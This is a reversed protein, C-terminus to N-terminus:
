WSVSSSSQLLITQRLTLWLVLLFGLLRDGFASSLFGHETALKKHWIIIRKLLMCATLFTTLGSKPAFRPNTLQPISKLRRNTIGPILFKFPPNVALRFIAWDAKWSGPGTKHTNTRLQVSLYFIICYLRKMLVSCDIWTVSGDLPRSIQGRAFIWMIKKDTLETSPVGKNLPFPCKKFGLNKRWEPSMKISLVRTVM